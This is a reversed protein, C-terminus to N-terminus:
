LIHTTHNLVIIVGNTACSNFQSFNIISLDFSIIINFHKDITSIYYFKDIKHLDYYKSTIRNKYLLLM